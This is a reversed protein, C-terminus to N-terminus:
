GIATCYSGGFDNIPAAVLVILLLAVKTIM